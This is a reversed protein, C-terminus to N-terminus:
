SQWFFITLNEHSEKHFMLSFQIMIETHEAM